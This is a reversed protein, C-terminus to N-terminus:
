KCVQDGNQWTVEKHPARPTKWDDGNNTGYVKGWELEGWQFSMGWVAWEGGWIRIGTLVNGDIYGAECFYESDPNNGWEAGAKTRPAWPNTRTCSEKDVNVASAISIVSLVTTVLRSFSVLM